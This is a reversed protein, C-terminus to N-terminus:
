RFWNNRIGLFAFALIALASMITILSAIGRSSSDKNYGEACYDYDTLVLEGTESSTTDTTNLMQILGQSEYLKYDTDETLESGTANTVTVDSLYCQSESRKWDGEDYWNDVTINCDESTEDVEGDDNYCGNSTLNTEEDSVSQLQTMQSQTEAIQGYIAISFIIGVALLVIMGLGQIQAKRNM